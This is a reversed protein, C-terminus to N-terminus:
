TLAWYAMMGLGALAAVVLGVEFYRNIERADRIMPQMRGIAVESCYFGRGHCDTGPRPKLTQHLRSDILGLARAPASTLLSVALEM